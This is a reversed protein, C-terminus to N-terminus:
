KFFILYLVVILSALITLYDIIDHNEKKFIKM